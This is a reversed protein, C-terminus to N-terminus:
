GNTRQEEESGKELAQMRACYEKAAKVLNHLGSDRLAGLLHPATSDEELLVLGLAEVSAALRRGREIAVAAPPSLNDNGLADVQGELRLKQLEANDLDDPDVNRGLPPGVLYDFLFRVAEISHDEVAMKVLAAVIARVDADTLATALALRIRGLQRQFANVHGVAAKNGKAFRSGSKNGKAFRGGLGRDGNNDVVAASPSSPQEYPHAQGNAEGPRHM